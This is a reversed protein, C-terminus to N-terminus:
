SQVEAKHIEKLAGAHANILSFDKRINLKSLNIEKTLEKLARLMDPAAAILRANAWQEPTAAYSCSEKKGIECIGEGDENDQIVALPLEENEDIKWPGPTHSRSELGSSQANTRTDNDKEAAM